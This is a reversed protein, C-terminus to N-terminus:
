ERSARALKHRIKSVQYQGVRPHKGQFGVMGYSFSHRDRAIRTNAHAAVPLDRRELARAALRQITLTQSQQWAEHIGVAM